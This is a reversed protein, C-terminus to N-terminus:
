SLVYQHSSTTFLAPLPSPLTNGNSDYYAFVIDTQGDLIDTEIYQTDFIAKNDIVGDSDDCLM